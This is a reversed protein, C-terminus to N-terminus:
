SPPPAPTPRMAAPGLERLVYQYISEPDAYREDDLDIVSGSGGLGLSGVLHPRTGLLLRLGQAPGAEVLPGLVSSWATRPRKLAEDIADIAVTLRRGRM